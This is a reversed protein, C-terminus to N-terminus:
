RYSLPMSIVPIDGALMFLCIYKVTFVGRRAREWFGRLAPFSAKGLLPFGTYNFVTHCRTFNKAEPKEKRRKEKGTPLLPINGYGARRSEM